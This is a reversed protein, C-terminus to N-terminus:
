TVSVHKTFKVGEFICVADFAYVHGCYYKTSFWLSLLFFKGPTTNQELCSVFFPLSEVPPPSDGLSAAFSFRTPQM